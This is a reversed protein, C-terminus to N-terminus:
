IRILIERKVINAARGILQKSMDRDAFGETTTKAINHIGKYGEKRFVYRLWSYDFPENESIVIDALERSTM